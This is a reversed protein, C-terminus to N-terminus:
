CSRRRSGFISQKMALVRDLFRELPKQSPVISGV